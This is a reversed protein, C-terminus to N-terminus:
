KTSRLRRSLKRYSWEALRKTVKGIAILCYVPRCVLADIKNGGTFLPANMVKKRYM